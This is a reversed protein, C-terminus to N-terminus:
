SSASTSSASSGSRARASSWSAACSSRSTATPTPGLGVGGDARPRLLGDPRQASDGVRRARPQVDPELRRDRDDPQVGDRQRRGPAPLTADLSIVELIKLKGTLAVTLSRAAITVGGAQRSAMTTNLRFKGAAELKLIDFISADISVDLLLVVGPNADTYVGAFGTAQVTIPGLGVRVDFFLEFQGATYSVSVTGNATAFNAFTVSGTILLKFGPPIVQGSLATKNVDTTNLELLASGSFTLGLGGGFGGGLTLSARLALGDADVILDATIALSGLPGITM